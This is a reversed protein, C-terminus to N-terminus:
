AINHLGLDIGGNFRAVRPPEDNRVPIMVDDFNDIGMLFDDTVSMTSPTEVPVGNILLPKRIRERPNLKMPAAKIRDDMAELAKEFHPIAKLKDETADQESYCYALKYHVMPDDVGNQIAEEFLPLAKDYSKLKFYKDATGLDGQAQIDAFFLLLLGVIFFRRM